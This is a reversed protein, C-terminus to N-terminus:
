HFFVPSTRHAYVGIPPKHSVSRRRAGVGSRGIDQNVEAKGECARSPSPEQHYEDSVSGHQFPDPLNSKHRGQNGGTQPSPKEPTHLDETPTRQNSDQRNCPISPQHGILWERRTSLEDTFSSLHHETHMSVLQRSTASLVADLEWELDELIKTSKQKEKM